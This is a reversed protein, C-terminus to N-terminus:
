KETWGNAERAIRYADLKSEICVVMNLICVNALFNCIKGALFMANRGIIISVIVQIIYFLPVLMLVIQNFLIKGPNSKHESNILFHTVFILVYAAIILIEMIEYVTWIGGITEFYYERSEFMDFVYPLDSFFTTALVAGIMGKMVNKDHKIYSIALVVLFVAMIIREVSYLADFWGSRLYCAESVTELVIFIIPMIVM